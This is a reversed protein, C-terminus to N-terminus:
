ARRRGAFALGLLGLALQIASSPEPILTMGFGQSAGPALSFDFQLAGTFDAPGFPSSADALDAAGVGQMADLTTQLVPFPAIEFHDAAVMSGVMLGFGTSGDTV